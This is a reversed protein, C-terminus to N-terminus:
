FPCVANCSHCVEVAKQISVVQHKNEQRLVSQQLMPWQDALLQFFRSFFVTLLNADYFPGHHKVHQFRTITLFQYDHACWMQGKHRSVQAQQSLQSVFPKLIELKGKM